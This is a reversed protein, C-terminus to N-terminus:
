CSEADKQKKLNFSIPYEVFDTKAFIKMCFINCSDAM